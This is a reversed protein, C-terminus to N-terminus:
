IPFACCNEKDSVMLGFCQYKVHGENLPGRGIKKLIHGQEFIAGNHFDCTKYRIVKLLCILIM